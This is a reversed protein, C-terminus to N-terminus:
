KRHSLAGKFISLLVARENFHLEASGKEKGEFHEFLADTRVYELNDRYKMCWNLFESTKGDMGMLKFDIQM